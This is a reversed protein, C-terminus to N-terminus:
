PCHAVRLFIRYMFVRVKYIAAQQRILTGSQSMLTGSLADVDSKRALLTRLAPALWECIAAFFESHGLVHVGSLRKDKPLLQLWLEAPNVNPPVNPLLRLRASLRSADMRFTSFPRFALASPAIPINFTTNLDIPTKNEFSHLCYFLLRKYLGFVAVVRAAIILLQFAQRLHDICTLQQEAASSPSSITAQKEPLCAVSHFAYHVLFGFSMRTMIVSVCNEFEKIRM